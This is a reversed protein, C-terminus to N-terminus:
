PLRILNGISTLFGGYCLRTMTDVVGLLGHGRTLSLWGLERCGLEWSGSLYLQSVFILHWSGFLVGGALHVCDGPM